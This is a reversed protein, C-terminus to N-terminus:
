IQIHKITGDGLLMQRSRSYSIERYIDREYVCVSVSGCMRIGVHDCVHVCVRVCMSVSVCVCKQDDTQGRAM